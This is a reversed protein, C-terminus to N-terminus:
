VGKFVILKLEGGYCSMPKLPNYICAQLNRSADEFWAERQSSKAVFSARVPSKLTEEPLEMLADRNPPTDTQQWINSPLNCSQNAAIPEPITQCGSVALAIVLLKSHM